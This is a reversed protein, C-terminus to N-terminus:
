LHQAVTGLSTRLPGVYWTDMEVTGDGQDAM